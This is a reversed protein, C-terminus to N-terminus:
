PLPIDRFELAVRVQQVETPFEWVLKAPEGAKKGDRADCALTRTIRVEDPGYSGGGGRSSLPTGQDDILRCGHRDFLSRFVDWDAQPKGDRHAVIEYAYQGDVVKNVHVIVVRFGGVMYEANRVTLVDPIELTQTAKRTVFRGTMKLRKIATGADAPLNLTLHTENMSNVPGSSRGFPGRAPGADVTKDTDTVCEDISDVFWQLPEVRPEAWAFLYLRCPPNQFANNNANLPRRGAFDRAKSLNMEIRHVTVLFPGAVAAPAAPAAGATQLQIKKKDDVAHFALGCRGSVDLLAQWMPVRELDVDVAQRTIGELLNETGAAFEVGAQKALEDLLEKPRAGTKRITVLAPGSKRSQELAALLGEIKSREDPDKADALRKRLKPEAKEGLAALEEAARDRVKWDPDRLKEVLPDLTPDASPAPDAAEASVALCIWLLTALVTSLHPRRM